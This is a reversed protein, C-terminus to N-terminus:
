WGKGVKVSPGPHSSCWEWTPNKYTVSPYYSTFQTKSFRVSNACSHRLEETVFPGIGAKTAIALPTLRQRFPAATKPLSEIMTERYTPRIKLNPDPQRM